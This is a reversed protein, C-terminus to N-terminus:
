NQCTQCYFYDSKIAELESHLIANFDAREDFFEVLNLLGEESAPMVGDSIWVEVEEDLPIVLDAGCRDCHHQLTGVINGQCLLLSPTKKLVWAKLSIEGEQVDIEFAEKPIKRFEITM